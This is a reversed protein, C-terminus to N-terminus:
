EHDPRTDAQHDAVLWRLIRKQLQSLRAGPM